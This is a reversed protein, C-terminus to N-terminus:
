SMAFANVHPSPVAPFLVLDNIVQLLSRVVAFNCHVITCLWKQQIDQPGVVVIDQVFLACNPQFTIGENYRRWVLTWGM